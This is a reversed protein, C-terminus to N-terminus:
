FGARMGYRVKGDFDLPRGAPLFAVAEEETDTRGNDYHLQEQGEAILAVAGAKPDLHGQWQLVIEHEWRPGKGNNNRERKGHVKSHGWM